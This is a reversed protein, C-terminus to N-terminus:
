LRIRKLILLEIREQYILFMKLWWKKSLGQWDPIIRLLLLLFTLSSFFNITDFVKSEFTIYSFSNQQKGVTDRDKNASFYQDRNSIYQENNIVNTRADPGFAIKTLRGGPVFLMDGVEVEEYEDGFALAGDHLLFIYNEVDYHNSVTIPTNILINKAKQFKVGLSEIIKNYDEM